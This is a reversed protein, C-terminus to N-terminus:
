VVSKRDEDVVQLTSLNVLTKSGDPYLLSIGNRWVKGSSIPFYGMFNSELVAAAKAAERTDTHMYYALLPISENLPHVNNKERVYIVDGELMILNKKLLQGLKVYPHELDLEGDPSLHDKPADDFVRLVTDRFPNTCVSEEFSPKYLWDEFSRAKEIENM